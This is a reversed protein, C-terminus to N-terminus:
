EGVYGPRMVLSEEWPVKGPKFSTHANARARGYGTTWIPACLEPKSTFLYANGDKDVALWNYEDSVHDWNISPKQPAIRYRFASWSWSVDGGDLSIRAWYDATDHRFEIEEGDVYAQMVKIAELTQEKNM